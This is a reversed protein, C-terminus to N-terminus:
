MRTVILIDGPVHNIQQWLKNITTFRITMDEGPAPAPSISAMISTLTTPRNPSLPCHFRHNHSLFDHRGMLFPLDLSSTKSFSNGHRASGTCSGSPCRFKFISIGFTKRGANCLLLGVRSLFQCERNVMEEWGIIHNQYSLGSLLMWSIM